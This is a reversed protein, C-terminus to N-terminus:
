PFLLDMLVEVIGGQKGTGVGAVTNRPIAMEFRVRLLVMKRRELEVLVLWTVYWGTFLGRRYILEQISVHSVCSSGPLSGDPGGHRFRLCGEGWLEHPLYGWPGAGGDGGIGGCKTVVNVRGYTQDRLYGRLLIHCSASVRGCDGEM